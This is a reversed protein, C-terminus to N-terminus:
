KKKGKDYIWVILCSLLYAIFINIWFTPTFIALWKPSVVGGTAYFPFPYGYFKGTRLHFFINEVFITLIIIISIIIWICIKRWDPKLFEKWSM